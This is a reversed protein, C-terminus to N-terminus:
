YKPAFKLWGFQVRCFGLKGRHSQFWVSVREFHQFRILNRTLHWHVWNFIFKCCDSIFFLLRRQKNQSFRTKPLKSAKCVSLLSNRSSHHSIASPVGSYASSFRENISTSQVKRMQFLINQVSQISCKRAGDFRHCCRGSVSHYVCWVMWWTYYFAMGRFTQERRAIKM